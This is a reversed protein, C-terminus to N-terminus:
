DEFGQFGGCEPVRFPAENNNRCDVIPSNARALRARLREIEDAAEGVVELANPGGLRLREVIDMM